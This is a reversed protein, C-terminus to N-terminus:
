GAGAFHDVLKGVVALEAPDVESLDLERDTRDSLYSLMEVFGFSDLDGQEFLDRDEGFAPVQDLPKDAHQAVFERILQVVGERNASM